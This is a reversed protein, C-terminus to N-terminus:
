RRGRDVGPPAERWAALTKPTVPVLDPSSFFGVRGRAADARPSPPHLDRGVNGAGCPCHHGAPSGGHQDFLNPEDNMGGTQTRKSTPVGRSEAVMPLAAARGKLARVRNRARADRMQAALSEAIRICLDVVERDGLSAFAEGTRLIGDLSGQQRARILALLYLRRATVESARRLGAVAGIRRVAHGVVITGEWGSTGLAALYADHWAKEADTVNKQALAEDVERIHPAWAATPAVLPNMHSAAAESAALMVLIFVVALRTRM